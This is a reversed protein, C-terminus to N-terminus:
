KVKSILDLEENTYVVKFRKRGVVQGTSTKVDVRWLGEKLNSKVSFGRYGGDSGGTISFPITSVSVWKNKDLYQWEHRIETSLKTPAFVSSYFYLSQGKQIPIKEVFTLYDSFTKHYDLVNYSVGNREVKYYIDADKLSLPIPPIINAFFMFTIIIFIFVSSKYAFKKISNFSRGFVKGFFEVYIFFIVLSILGSSIFIFAGIQKTLIPLLFISYTFLAFFFVVLKIKIDSFHEKLYETSAMLVVLLFIFPWSSALTSSRFYFITFGSFLGGLVVLLIINLFPKIQYFFRSSIKETDILYLVFILIGSLILYTSLIFNEFFLDIRQLTLTDIVFGGFLAIPSIIKENKKVFARSKNLM